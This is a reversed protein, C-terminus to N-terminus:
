CMIRSSNTIFSQHQSQGCSAATEETSEEIYAPFSFYLDQFPSKEIPEQKNDDQNSTNASSPTSSVLLLLNKVFASFSNRRTSSTTSMNPTSATAITANM